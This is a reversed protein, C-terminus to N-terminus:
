LDLGRVLFAAMQGRTVPDNPCFQGGGCGLTVGAASLRDIEDAFSHGVTDSFGASPAPPLDLARTMFAAMQARTILESPCYRDASCGSTIGAAAVRNIDDSFLGGADVFGFDGAAPLELARNLFAAMQGRTVSQGPCFREPTCGSTIGAAAIKEIDAQFPSGDDDAFTGEFNPSYDPNSFFVHTTWLQGAGDIYVGTVAFEFAPNMLNDRHGASDMFSDFMTSCDPLAPNSQWGINEAWATWGSPLAASMESSTSHVLEGAAAMDASHQRTYAVLDEVWELAAVGADARADNISDIFCQEIDSAAVAPQASPGITILAAGVMVSLLSISIRRGPAKMALM